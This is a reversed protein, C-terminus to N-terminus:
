NSHVSVSTGTKTTPRMTDLTLAQTPELAALCAHPIYQEKANNIVKQAVMESNAAKGFIYSTPQGIQRLHDFLPGSKLEIYCSGERIDRLNIRSFPLAIASTTTSVTGASTAQKLASYGLDVSMVFGPVPDLCLMGKANAMRPNPCVIINDALLRMAAAEQKSIEDGNAEKKQARKRIDERWYVSLPAAGGVCLFKNISGVWDRGRVKQWYTKAEDYSKQIWTVVSREFAAEFNLGRYLLPTNPKRRAIENVILDEDIEQISEPFDKDSKIISALATIGGRPIIYTLRSQIVGDAVLHLNFTGHNFELLCCVDGEEVTMVGEQKSHEFSGEGEQYLAVSQNERVIHYSKRDCHYIFEHTGPVTKNILEECNQPRPACIKVENVTQKVTTAM